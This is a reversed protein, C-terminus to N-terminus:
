NIVEYVSSFPLGADNLKRVFIGGIVNQIESQGRGSFPEPDLGHAVRRAGILCGCGERYDWWGWAIKPVTRAIERLEALLLPSIRGRIEYGATEITAETIDILQQRTIPAIRPPDELVEADFRRGM